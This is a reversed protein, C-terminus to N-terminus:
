ITNKLYSLYLNYYKTAEDWKALLHYAWGAYYTLDPFVNPDLSIHKTLIDFHNM